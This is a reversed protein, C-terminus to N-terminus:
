SSRTKRPKATILMKREEDTLSKVFSPKKFLRRCYKSWYRQATAMLKVEHYNLRLFLPVLCCDVLSLEDSNFFPKQASRRAMSSLYDRLIKRARAKELDDKSYMVKDVEAYLRDMVRYLIQRNYARKVPEMPMLQPHPYREELYEMIIQGDYLTLNRDSLTLVANIRIKSYKMRYIKMVKM